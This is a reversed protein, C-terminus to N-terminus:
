ESVYRFPWLTDQHRRDQYTLYEWREEFYVDDPSLGCSRLLATPDETAQRVLALVDLQRPTLRAYGAPGDTVRWRVYPLNELQLAFRDQPGKFVDDM